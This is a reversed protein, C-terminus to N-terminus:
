QSLALLALGLFVIGFGLLKKQLSKATLLEKPAYVPFVKTFVWAFAIVMFPQVNATVSVLSAPGDEYALTLSYVGVLFLAIVLANLLYFSLPQTRFGTLLRTRVAPLFWPLLFATSERSLLMWFFVAWVSGGLSLSYEQASYFPVYCLACGLLIALSRLNLAKSDSLSFWFIGGLITLAGVWELATWSDGFFMFGVITM